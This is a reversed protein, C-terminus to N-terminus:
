KHSPRGRKVDNSGETHLKLHNKMNDQRPFPAMTCGPWTCKFSGNRSATHAQRATNYSVTRKIPGGTSSMLATFASPQVPEQVVSSGNSSSALQATSLPPPPYYAYIDFGKEGPSTTTPHKSCVKVLRLNGKEGMREYAKQLSFSASNSANSSNLSKLKLELELHADCPTCAKGNVYFLVGQDMLKKHQAQQEKIHTRQIGPYQSPDKLMLPLDANHLAADMDRGPAGAMDVM